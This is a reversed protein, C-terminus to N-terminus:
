PRGGGPGRGDPNPGEQFQTDPDTLDAVPGGAGEAAAQEGAAEEVDEIDEEQFRVANAVVPALPIEIVRSMTIPDKNEEIPDMYLTIEVLSPIANTDEWVDDWEEEVLNFTRCDLGKVQASVFWAEGEWDEVNVMHPFARVAVGTEGDENEEISIEIRHLGNALPSDRPVFATGSTVFSIRDAPYGGDDRDELWFGYQEPKNYFYATSRLSSVLQEMVFDGHHLEDLLESGRRWARITVVFTAIVVAMAMTMISLAILLELLTFGRASLAERRNDREPIAAAHM